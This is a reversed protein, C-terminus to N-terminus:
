HAARGKGERPMIVKVQTGAGPSSVIQCVGGIKDVRTRMNLLGRGPRTGKEVADVAFGVGDDSIVLEVDTENATCRLQVRSAKSHRAVNSLAEKIIFYLHEKSQPTLSQGARDTVKAEVQIKTTARFEEAMANVATALPTPCDSLVPLDGIYDRIDQMVRDVQQIIEKLQEYNDPQEKNLFKLRQVNLSVAYLSQIVGDHLDRAIRGREEVLTKQRRAQELQRDNEANFVEMMRSIGYATMVGLLARLLQIPIRLTRFVTDSNLVAAPFFDAEPVIMGEALGYGLLGILAVNIYWDRRPMEVQRLDHRQMMLGIGAAVSGPLALLYRSWLDATNYWAQSMLFGPHLVPELAFRALWLGFIVLPVYEVHRAVPFRDRILYMGFVFLFLFSTAWLLVQIGWLTERVGESLFAQQIPIFLLGWEALGHMIAFTSLLWLRKALRFQSHRRYRLAVVVGLMFFALGYIFIVVSFNASIFEEWRAM